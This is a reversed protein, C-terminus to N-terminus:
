IIGRSLPPCGESREFRCSACKQQLRCFDSLSMSFAGAAATGLATDFLSKGKVKSQFVNQTIPQFQLKIASLQPLIAIEASNNPEQPIRQPLNESKKPFNECSVAPASLPSPSGERVARLGLRRM